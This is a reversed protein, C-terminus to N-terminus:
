TPMVWCTIGERVRIGGESDHSTDMLAAELAGMLLEKSLNDTTIVDDSM